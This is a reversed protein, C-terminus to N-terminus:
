KIGLDAYGQGLEREIARELRRCGDRCGLNSELQETTEDAHFADVPDGGHARPDSLPGMVDLFDGVHCGTIWARLAGADTATTAM